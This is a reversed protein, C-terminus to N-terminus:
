LILGLDGEIIRSPAGGCEGRTGRPLRSQIIHPPECLSIAMLIIIIIFAEAQEDQLKSDASILLKLNFFAPWLFCPWITLGRSDLM